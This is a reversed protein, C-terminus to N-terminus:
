HHAVLTSSKESVNRDNTEDDQQDRWSIAENREQFRWQEQDVKGRQSKSRRAQSRYFVQVRNSTAEVWSTREKAAHKWKRIWCEEVACSTWYLNTQCEDKDVLQCEARKSSNRSSHFWNCEKRDLM